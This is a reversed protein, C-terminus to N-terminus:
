TTMPLDSYKTPRALIIGDIVTGNSSYSWNKRTPSPDLFFIQGSLSTPPGFDTLSPGPQIQKHRPMPSLLLPQIILVCARHMLEIDDPLAM